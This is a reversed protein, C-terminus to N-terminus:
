IRFFLMACILAAFFLIGAVGGVALGILFPAPRKKTYM